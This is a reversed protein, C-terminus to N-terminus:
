SLDDIYDPPIPLPRSPCDEQPCNLTECNHCTIMWNIEDLCAELELQMFTRIRTERMWAMKHEESCYHADDGSNAEERNLANEGKEIFFNM